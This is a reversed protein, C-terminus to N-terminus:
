KSIDHEPVWLDYFKKGNCIIPSIKYHNIGTSFYASVYGRCYKDNDVRVHVLDGVQYKYETGGVTSGCGLLMLLPLLLKM